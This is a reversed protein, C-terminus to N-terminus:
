QPPPSDFYIGPATTFRASIDAHSAYLKTGLCMTEPICEIRVKLLRKSMKVPIPNATSAESRKPSLLDITRSIHSSPYHIIIQFFINGLNFIM